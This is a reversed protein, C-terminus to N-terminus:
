KRAETGRERERANGLRSQKMDKDKKAEVARSEGKRKQTCKRWYEKMFWIAGHGLLGSVPSLLPGGSSGRGYIVGVFFYYLQATRNLINSKYVIIEREV